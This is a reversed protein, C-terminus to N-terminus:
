RQWGRQLPVRLLHLHFRTMHHHLEDNPSCSNRITQIVRHYRLSMQFWKVIVSSYLIVTMIYINKKKKLNAGTSIASSFWNSTHCVLSNAYSNTNRRNLSGSPQQNWGQIFPATSPVHYHNWSDNWCSYLLHLLEWHRYPGAVSM